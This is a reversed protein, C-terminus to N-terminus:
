KLIQQIEAMSYQTNQWHTTLASILVTTVTNHTPCLHFTNHFLHKLTKMIKMFSVDNVPACCDLARERFICILASYHQLKLSALPWLNYLVDDYGRAQELYGWLMRLKKQVGIIRFCNIWGVQPNFGPGASLWKLSLVCQALSGCLCTQATHMDHMYM